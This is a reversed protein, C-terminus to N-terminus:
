KYITKALEIMEQQKDWATPELLKASVLRKAEPDANDIASQPMGPYKADAPDQVITVGGCKKIAIMGATGDDLMGTLVVGIVKPGHAVAASRFLPDIAPRSRNERAGKTVLVTREKVLMHHDPPAIYITGQEFAEGDEAM